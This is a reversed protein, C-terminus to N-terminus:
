EGRGARRRGAPAPRVPGRGQRDPGPDGHLLRPLAGARPPLAAAAAIVPHRRASPQGARTRTLQHMDVVHALSRLEHLAALARRRKLRGELTALFWIAIGVFVVDNVGSELTQVLDTVTEIRTDIRLSRIVTAVGALLLVALIAAAARLALLPRRLAPARHPRRPPWACSPRSAACAPRPFREGIREELRRATTLIQRGDLELYSPAATVGAARRGGTGRAAGRDRVAQAADTAEHRARVREMRRRRRRGDRVGGAAGAGALAPPYARVGRTRGHAAHAPGHRDRGRARRRAARPGRRREGGGDGEPRADLLRTLTRRNADDDEAVLIRLGSAAAAARAAPEPPRLLSTPMLTLAVEAGGAAAAELRLGAGCTEAVRQALALEVHGTFAPDAPRFYHLEHEAHGSPLPPGSDAVTLLVSAGIPLAAVRIRRPSPAGRLRAHAFALLRLLLMELDGADCAVLPLGPTIATEIEIGAATLDPRRRHLAADVVAGVHAAGRSAGPARVLYILDRVIAAATRAEAAVHDLTEIEVDSTAAGRALETFGLIAGLRNNLQNVVEAIGAEYVTLPRPADPPQSREPPTTAV